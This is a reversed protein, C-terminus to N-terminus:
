RIRALFGYSSKSQVRQAQGLFRFVQSNATGVAYTVGEASVGLGFLEDEGEGGIHQVMLFKGNQDFRAVFSDKGGYSHLIQQDIQIQTSNFAGGLHLVGQADVAIKRIVNFPAAGAISQAPTQGVDRVWLVGGNDDLAMLFLNPTANGVLTQQAFTTTGEYTGGVYVRTGQPTEHVAIASATTKQPAPAEFKKLWLVQGLPSVKVIVAARFASTTILSGFRAVGVGTADVFGAIYANGQRDTAVGSFFDNGAGGFTQVWLLKRSADFRALLVDLAGANAVNTGNLERSTTLGLLTIAGTGDVSADACIDTQTGGLAISGAVVAQEDVRSLFIDSQGRSTLLDQHIGVQQSFTGAFVMGGQPDVALGAFDNSQVASVPLPRIWVAQLDQGFRAVFFGGFSLAPLVNQPDLVLPNGRETLGTVYVYGQKAVAV